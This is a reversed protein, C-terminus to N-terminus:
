RESCETIEDAFILDDLDAPRKINREMGTRREKKRGGTYGRAHSFALLTKTFEGLDAKRKQAPHWLSKRRKENPRHPFERLFQREKYIKERTLAM